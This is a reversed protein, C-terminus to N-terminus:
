GINDWGKSDISLKSDEYKWIVYNNGSYLEIENVKMSDKVLIVPQIKNKAMKGGGHFVISNKTVKIKYQNGSIKAPLKIEKSYGEGNSSVQNINDSVADLLIRSSLHNEINQQSSISNFSLSLIFIAILILLFISFLYQISIFGKNNM